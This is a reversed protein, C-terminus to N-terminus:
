CVSDRLWLLHKAICDIKTTFSPGDLDIGKIERLKENSIESYIGSTRTTSNTPDDPLPMLEEAVKLEQLKYTIDHLDNRTLKRKCVPCNHHANWWYGMCEKCFQHGCITLAGIEFTSQCIVCMRQETPDTTAEDRLHILYRRKASSTAIRKVLIEEEAILQDRLRHNDGEEIPAVMDSLEQLQRYYALRMNMLTTFTDIEQRLGVIAKSQENYQKQVKQREQEVINLETNARARGSEADAKLNSALARLDSIVRRLSANKSAKVQEQIKFLEIVKEPFPGQGQKALNLANKAENKILQNEQGTLADYRDETVTRLIQVLVVVEDQTKTSEEYEDGTTEGGEDDVLPRLLLKITQERWDDLQNAQADLAIGVENLQDIIRRSEIGGPLLSSPFEPIQVFTQLAAKKSIKTM